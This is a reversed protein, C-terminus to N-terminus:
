QKSNDYTSESGGAADICARSRFVVIGSRGIGLQLVVFGREAKYLVFALYGVLVTFITGVDLEAYFCCITQINEDTIASYM